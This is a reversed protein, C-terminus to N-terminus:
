NLSSAFISREPNAWEEAAAEKTEGNERCIHSETSSDTKEEDDPALYPRCHHMLDIIILFSVPVVQLQLYDRFLNSIWTKNLKCVQPTYEPRFFTSAIINM